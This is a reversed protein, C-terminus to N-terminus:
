VDGNPMSLHEGATLLSYRANAEGARRKAQTTARVTPETSARRGRQEEDVCIRM